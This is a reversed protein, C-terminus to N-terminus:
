ILAFQIYLIQLLIYFQENIDYLFIYEQSKIRNHFVSSVLNRDNDGQAEREIISALIIINDFTFGLETARQRDTEKIHANFNDLMKRIMDEPKSEKSFYYTDPYLYGELKNERKIGSLFWYDYSYNNVINYFDQTTMLENSVFLDCVKYIELGEIFTISVETNRITSLEILIKKYSNNKDIKHIGTQIKSRFGCINAVIKFIIPHKIVKKILLENSIKNITDGSKINLEVPKNNKGFGFIDYSATILYIALIISIVLSVIYKLNIKSLSWKWRSYM